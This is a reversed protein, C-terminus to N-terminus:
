ALEVSAGDWALVTLAMARALPIEALLTAQLAQAASDRGGASRAARITAPSAPRSANMRAAYRARVDTRSGAAHTDDACAQRGSKQGFAAPPGRRSRSGARHPTAAANPARAPHRLTAAARGRAARARM